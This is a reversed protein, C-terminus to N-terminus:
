EEVLRASEIASAIGARTWNAHFEDQDADIISPTTCHQMAHILEHVLATQRWGGRQKTGVKIRQELGCASTGDVYAAQFDTKWADVPLVEIRWGVLAECNARRSSLRADTSAAAADLAAVVATRLVDDTLWSGPATTVGCDTSEPTAYSAQYAGCGTALLAAFLSRM